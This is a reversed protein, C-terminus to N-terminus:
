RRRVDKFIDGYNGHRQMNDLKSEMVFQDSHLSNHIPFFPDNLSCLYLFSNSLSTGPDPTDGAFTTFLM